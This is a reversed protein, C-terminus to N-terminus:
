RIDEIIEKQSRLNRVFKNNLMKKSYIFDNIEEKQTEKQRNNEKEIKLQPNIQKQQSQNKVETKNEFFNAESEVDSEEDSFDSVFCTEIFILNVGGGGVFWFLHIMGIM